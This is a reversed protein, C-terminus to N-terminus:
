GVHHSRYKDPLFLKTFYQIDFRQKRKCGTVGVEVEDCGEYVYFKCRCTVDDNFTTSVVEIAYTLGHGLQYPMTKRSM